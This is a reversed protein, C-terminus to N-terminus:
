CRELAEVVGPVTCALAWGVEQWVPRDLCGTEEDMFFKKVDVALGCGTRPFTEHVWRVLHGGKFRVNERVDLRRGGVTEGTLSTLFADAVPGWRDRDMSGTGLNVDPESGPSRDGGPRRHNYSHLDYVVFRGHLAELRRLAAALQAYFADYLRLSEAVLHDPPPRRWCRLGWADDSGRYVAHARDRNLDVEFRSRHVVVRTAALVTWGGTFPDEEYLRGASTVALRAAVEPRVDHGCHLACAVVPGVGEVIRWPDM